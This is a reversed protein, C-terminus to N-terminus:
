GDASKGLHAMFFFFLAGTAFWCCDPAFERTPQFSATAKATTAATVARTMLTEHDRSGSGAATKDVFEPSDGAEETENAKAGVTGFV